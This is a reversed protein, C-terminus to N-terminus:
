LKLQSLAVTSMRALMMPDALDRTTLEAYKAKFENLLLLTLEYHPNTPPPHASNNKPM